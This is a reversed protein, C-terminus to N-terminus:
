KIIRIIFSLNVVDKKGGIADKLLISTCTESWSVDGWTKYKVSKLDNLDYFLLIM